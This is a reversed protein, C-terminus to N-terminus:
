FKGKGNCGDCESGNFVGFGNCIACTTTPVYEDRKGALDNKFQRFVKPGMEARCDDILDKITKM